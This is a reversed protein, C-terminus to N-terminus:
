TGSSITSVSSDDDSVRHKSKQNQAILNFSMKSNKKM